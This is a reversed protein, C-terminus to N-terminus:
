PLRKIILGVEEESFARMTESTFGGQMGQALVLAAMVQDDPADYIAVADYEGFTMWIGILRVGMKQYMERAKKLADPMSKADGLGKETFKILSVYGAM